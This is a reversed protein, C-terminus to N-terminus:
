SCRFPSLSEQLIRFGAFFESRGAASGAGGLLSSVIRGVNVGGGVRIRDCTLFVKHLCVRVLSHVDDARREFLGM